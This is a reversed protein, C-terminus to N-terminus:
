EAISFGKSNILSMEEREKKKLLRLFFFCLLFVVTNICNLCQLIHNIVINLVYNMTYHAFKLFFFFSSYFFIQKFVFFSFVSLIFCLTKIRDGKFNQKFFSALFIWWKLTAFIALKDKRKNNKPNIGSPQLTQENKNQTWRSRITFIDTGSM